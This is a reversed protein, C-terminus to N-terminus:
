VPLTAVINAFATDTAVDVAGFAAFPLQANSFSLRTWLVTAEHTADGSAVGHYFPYQADAPNPEFFGPIAQGTCVTPLWLLLALPLCARLRIQNLM